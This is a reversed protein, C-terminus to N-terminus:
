SILKIFEEQLDSTDQSEDIMIENFSAKIEDCINQNDKVLNIAM